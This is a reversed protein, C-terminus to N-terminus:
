LAVFRVKKGDSEKRCTNRFNVELHKIHSRIRAENFGLLKTLEIVSHFEVLACDITYSQTGPKTNNFPSKAGEIRRKAVNKEWSTLKSFNHAKLDEDYIIASKADADAEFAAYVSMLHTFQEAAKKASLPKKM